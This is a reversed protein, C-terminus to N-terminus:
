STRLYSLCLPISLLLPFLSSVLRLRTFIFSLSSFRIRAELRTPKDRGKEEKREKRRRSRVPEATTEKWLKITKILNRRLIAKRQARQGPPCLAFQSTYPIFRSHFLLHSSQSPLFTAELGVQFRAFIEALFIYQKGEGMTNINFRLWINFPYSQFKDRRFNWIEEFELDYFNCIKTSDFYYTLKILTPWLSSFIFWVNSRVTQPGYNEVVGLNSYGLINEARRFPFLGAADILFM